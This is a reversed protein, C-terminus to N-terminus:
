VGTPVEILFLPQGYHVAEGEQILVRRLRGAAPSEVPIVKRGMEIWGLKEGKKLDRGETDDCGPYGPKGLRFVGVAPSAVARWPKSPLRTGSSSLEQSKKFHFREQGKEWYVEMLDTSDIFDIIQKAQSLDM